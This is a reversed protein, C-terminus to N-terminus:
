TILGRGSKSITGDETLDKIIKDLVGNIFVSSKPSSYEKSIEIYENISVKVPILPFYILEAIASIIIALDIQAIRKTDWNPIRGDLFSKLENNNKFVQSILKEGFVIEEKYDNIDPIKFSSKIKTDIENSIAIIYSNIIPIDDTWTINQDQIFEYLIESNCVIESFFSIFFNLDDKDSEKENSINKLFIESEFFRKKIDDIYNYNLEWNITLGRKGKPIKLNSYYIFYSNEVIIEFSKNKTQISIFHNRIEKILDISCYLLDLSNSISNRFELMNKDSDDALISNSYVFQVVRTRIYRRNIIKFFM